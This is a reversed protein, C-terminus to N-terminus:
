QNIASGGSRTSTHAGNVTLYLGENVIGGTNSLVAGDLNDIEGFNQFANSVNFNGDVIDTTITNGAPNPNPAIQTQARAPTPVTFLFAAAIAAISTLGLHTGM